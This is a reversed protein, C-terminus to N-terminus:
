PNRTIVTIVPREKNANTPNGLIVNALNSGKKLVSILEKIDAVAKINIEYPPSRLTALRPSSTFFGEFFRGRPM